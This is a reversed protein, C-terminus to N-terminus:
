EASSKSRSRSDRFAALWRHDQDEIGAGWDSQRLDSAEVKEMLEGSLNMDRGRHELFDRRGAILSCAPNFDASCRPDLYVV